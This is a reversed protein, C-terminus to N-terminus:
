DRNNLWELNQVKSFLRRSNENEIMWVTGRKVNSGPSKLRLISAARHLTGTTLMPLQPDEHSKGAIHQAFRVEQILHVNGLGSRHIGIPIFFARAPAILAV